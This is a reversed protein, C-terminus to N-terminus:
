LSSQLAALERAHSVAYEAMAAPTRCAALGELAGRAPTHADRARLRSVTPKIAALIRAAAAPDQGAAARFAAEDSILARNSAILADVERARCKAEAAEARQEVAQATAEAQEKAAKLAESEAKIAALADLVAQKDADAELGLAALIEPDMQTSDGQPNTNERAAALPSLTKFQPANTMGISELAVPRWLNGSLRVLRLVPSRSVLVRNDHLERGKPTFEWRTWLSGDSERRIDVAWALADSPKDPDTSFHERDVLLGPWGVRNLRMNRFNEEILRAATEDFRILSEPAPHGDEDTVSGGGPYDGYAPTTQFWSGQPTSRKESFIGFAGLMVTKM